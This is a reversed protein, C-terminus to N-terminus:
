PWEAGAFFGEATNQPTGFFTGGLLSGAHIKDRGGKGGHILNRQLRRM